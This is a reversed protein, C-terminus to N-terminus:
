SARRLGSLDVGSDNAHRDIEALEDDTFGSPIAPLKVGSRATRRYIM